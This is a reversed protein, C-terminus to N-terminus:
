NPHHDSLAGLTTLKLAYKIRFLRFACYDFISRADPGLYDSVLAGVLSQDCWHVVLPQGFQRCRVSLQLLQQVHM